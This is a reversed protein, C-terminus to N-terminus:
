FLSSFITSEADNVYGATTRATYEKSGAFLPYDELKAIMTNVVKDLM